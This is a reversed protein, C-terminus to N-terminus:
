RGRGAMKKEVKRAAPAKSAKAIITFVEEEREADSNYVVTGDSYGVMKRRQIERRAEKGVANQQDNIALLQRDTHTLYTLNM